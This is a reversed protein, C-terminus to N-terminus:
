KIFKASDINTITHLEEMDMATIITRNQINAILGIEKYVLLSEKSGKDKLEDIAQNLQQYDEQQLHLDRSILRKQAHNSVKLEQTKTALSDKFENPQSKKVFNPSPQNNLRNPQIRLNM